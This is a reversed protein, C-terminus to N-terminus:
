TAYQRFNGPLTESDIVGCAALTHWYSKDAYHILTNERSRLVLDGEGSHTAAIHAIEEPLGASLCIHVGYATHRLSPVGARGPDKEWSERRQPDFEWTKGIDHCIGGAIVIDRRLPLDPFQALMSDCMGMALRTVGRIHDTQDGETQMFVGPIAAPPIDSIADFSSASLAMKWAAVVQDRLAADSIERIEPLENLITVRLRDDPPTAKM